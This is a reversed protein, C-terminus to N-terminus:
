NTDISPHEDQENREIEAVAEGAEKRAMADYLPSPKAGGCLIALREQHRYAFEALRQQPTM